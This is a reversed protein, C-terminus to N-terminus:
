ARSPTAVKLTGVGPGGLGSFDNFAVTGVGLGDYRAVSAVIQMASRAQVGVVNVAEQNWVVQM